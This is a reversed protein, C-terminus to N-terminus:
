AANLTSIVVHSLFQLGDQIKGVATTQDARLHESFTKAKEQVSKQPLAEQSKASVGKIAAEYAETVDSIGTIFSNSVAEVYGIMTQANIRIVKAKAVIDEPWEISMKDEDPNEDETKNANSIISKAFTLLQSVALCSIESLRHVGESHLSDLRGFTREIIDNVALGALAGNFGAAMEAAKSVSSNHLNKVEDSSGDNGREVTKGKNSDIGSGDIETSLNFMQQVEKLKGDYASKQEAPLKGKKRNFILAYHSSLAELEELQEPGGYIYFCRDFTVEELLQDDETQEAKEVEIGTETILLDMTEKGVYELVQMGKATFAKGTELLSPASGDAGHGGQQVSGALNAASNELKQVFDTSGRWASGLAKWTGSAFNEVSNDFARLGQSLLTDGSAKELKDLASKRLKDDEDESEKKNASEEAGEEEKSSDSDEATIQLDAISKSATEAVATANRSIEEAAVAAAKQLDSLVSLPSFGWGGWGGGGSGTPPPATETTKTQKEEAVKKEEVNLPQEKEDM